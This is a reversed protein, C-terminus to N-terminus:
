LAALATRIGLKRRFGEWSTGVLDTNLTEPPNQKPNQSSQEQTSVPFGQCPLIRHKTSPPQNRRHTDGTDNCQSRRQQDPEYQKPRGGGLGREGGQGHDGAGSLDSVLARLIKPRGDVPFGELYTVGDSGRGFSAGDDGEKFATCHLHFRLCLHRHLLHLALLFTSEESLDALRHAYGPVAHDIEDVRARAVLDVSGGGRHGHATRQELHL